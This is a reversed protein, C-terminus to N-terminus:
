AKRESPRDSNAPIYAKVSGSEGGRGSCITWPGPINSRQNARQFSEGQILALRPTGVHGNEIQLTYGESHRRSRMILSQGSIGQAVDRGRCVLSVRPVIDAPPLIRDSLHM